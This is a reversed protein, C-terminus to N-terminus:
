DRIHSEHKKNNLDDCYFFFVRNNIVRQVLIIWHSSDVHLPITINSSSITPKNKTKKAHKSSHEHLFFAKFAADWGKSCLVRHFNTDLTHIDENNKHLLSLFTRMISDNIPSGFQLLQRFSLHNISPITSGHLDTISNSLQSTLCNFTAM